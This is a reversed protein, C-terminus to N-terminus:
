ELGVEGGEGREWGGRAGREGKGVIVKRLETLIRARGEAVKEASVSAVSSDM